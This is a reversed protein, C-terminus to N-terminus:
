IERLAYILEETPVFGHQMLVEEPVMSEKVEERISKLESLAEVRTYGDEILQEVLVNM